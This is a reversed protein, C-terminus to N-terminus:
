FSVAPQDMHTDARVLDSTLLLQLINGRWWHLTQLSDSRHRLLNHAGCHIPKCFDLLVARPCLAKHGGDCAPGDPGSGHTGRRKRQWSAGGCARAACVVGQLADVLLVDAEADAM